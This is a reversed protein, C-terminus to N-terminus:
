LRNSLDCLVMYGNRATIYISVEEIVSSDEGGRSFLDDYCHIRTVNFPPREVEIFSEDSKFASDFNM